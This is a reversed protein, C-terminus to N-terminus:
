SEYECVPMPRDPLGGTGEARYRRLWRRVTEADERVIAAIAPAARRREGARLVMPARTRLRM